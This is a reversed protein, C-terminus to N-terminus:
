KAETKPLQLKEYRSTVLPLLHMIENPDVCLASPIDIEELRAERSTFERLLYESDFEHYVRTDNVRVLVGDVRLFFRLLVYFSGPMVRLKANCVAVGNDHLEDEFLTIDKYFLIREKRRLKDLDIRETTEQADINHLTGCYQTTFTWDFPNKVGEELLKCGKRSEKWAQACSVVLDMKDPSVCQLADLALFEFTAGTDHILSLVNNAFVMDPLHPLSLNQTFACFQCKDSDNENCKHNPNGCKSGLIHSNKTHFKWAKVTM